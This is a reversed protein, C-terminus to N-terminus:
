SSRMVRRLHDDSGSGPVAQDETAATQVMSRPSFPGSRTGDRCSDPSAAARQRPRPMELDSRTWRAIWMKEAGDAFSGSYDLWLWVLVM